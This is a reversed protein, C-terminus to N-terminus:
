PYGLSIDDMENLLLYNVSKIGRLGNCSILPYNECPILYYGKDLLLANPQNIQSRVISLCIFLSLRSVFYEYAHDSLGYLILRSLPM